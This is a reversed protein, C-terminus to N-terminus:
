NDLDTAGLGIDNSEALGRLDRLHNAIVHAPNMLEINSANPIPPMGFQVSSDALGIEKSGTIEMDTTPDIGLSPLGSATLPTVYGVVNNNVNSCAHLASPVGCHIRLFLQTRAHLEGFRECDELYAQRLRTLNLTAKLQEEPSQMGTTRFMQVLNIFDQESGSISQVLISSSSDSSTPISMYRPQLHSSEQPQHQQIMPFSSIMTAPPTSAPPIAYYFPPAMATASANAAPPPVTTATVVTVPSNLPCSLPVSKSSIVTAPIPNVPGSASSGSSSSSSSTVVAAIKSSKKRERFNRQRVQNLQLERLKRNIKDRQSLLVKLTNRQEESEEGEGHSILSQKISDEMIRLEQKLQEQKFSSRKMSRL